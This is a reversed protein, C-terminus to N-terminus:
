QLPRLGSTVFYTLLHLSQLCCLMAEGFYLLPVKATGPAGM